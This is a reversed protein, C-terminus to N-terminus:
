FQGEVASGEYERRSREEAAHVADTVTDYEDLEFEYLKPLPLGAKKTKRGYVNIWKGFQDQVTESQEHKVRKVKM